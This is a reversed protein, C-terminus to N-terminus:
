RRRVTKSRRINRFLKAIKSRAIEDPLVEWLELDVQRLFRGGMEKSQRLLLESQQTKELRAASDYEAALDKVRQRLLINGQNSRCTTTGFLIDNPTLEDDPVLIGTTKKQHTTNPVSEVNNYQTSLSKKYNRLMQMTKRRIEEVAVEKWAIDSADRKLFRGGCGKIEDMIEDCIAIKRQNSALGYEDCREKTRDRHLKSGCNNMKQGRVFLVDNARPRFPLESEPEDEKRQQMDYWILFEDLKPEHNRTELPLFEPPIGFTSLIYQCEQHSGFHFKCRAMVPLPMAAIAARGFVFQAANDTCHHLGSFYLPFSSCLNGTELFGAGNMKDQFRDIMYSIMVAGKKQTEQSSWLCMFVYFRARLENALTKFRRLGPCQFLIQRGVRDTTSLIQMSGNKLCEKDDDNLDSFEIDKTLKTSGFLQLKMSFFDIMQKAAAKPCYRKSRLFSLRFARDEVYSSEKAEATEYVSGQKISKLHLDLEELWADIQTEDEEISDSVGHLDEQAQQREGFSLRSMSHAITADLEARGQRKTIGDDPPPETIVMTFISGCCQPITSDTPSAFTSM